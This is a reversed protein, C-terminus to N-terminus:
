KKPLKRGKAGYDRTIVNVDVDIDSKSFVEDWDGEVKKWTAYERIKLRQGFGAVDAKYKTKTKDLAKLVLREMEGAVLQNFEELGQKDLVDTDTWNESLHGDSKIEVRFSIQEGKVVPKIRTRVRRIDYVIEKGNKNKVSVIGGRSGNHTGTLLNIGMTEETTLRGILRNRTGSIVAAGEFNVGTNNKRIFQALFSEKASLHISMDGLTVVPPIESTKYDNMTMGLLALSPIEHNKMKMELAQKASGDIFLIQVTRRVEHDKNFLDMLDLLSLSSAIDNSILIVKLHTYYPSRANLRSTDRIMNMVNTGRTTVNYYSKASEKKQGIITNVFQQTMELESTDTSKDIAIGVVM